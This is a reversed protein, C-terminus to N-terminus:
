FVRGELPGIVWWDVLASIVALAVIVLACVGLLRWGHFKREHDRSEAAGLGDDDARDAM